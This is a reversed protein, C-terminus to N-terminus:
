MLTPLSLFSEPETLFPNGRPSILQSFYHLYSLLLLSPSSFLNSSAKAGSEVGPRGVEGVGIMDYVNERVQM